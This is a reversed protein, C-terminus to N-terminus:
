DLDTCLFCHMQRAEVQLMEKEHNFRHRPHINTGGIRGISILHLVQAPVSGAKEVSAM